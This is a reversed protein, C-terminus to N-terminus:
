ASEENAARTWGGLELCLEAIDRAAEPRSVSGAAEEMAARRQSDCLISAVLDALRQADLDREPLMVAAGAEVLSRANIEQHNDAAHPFPILVAPKRCLSLETVTTAGARCVVLDARRYALAMEDIFARTEVRDALGLTRYRQAVAELEREGTQHVLRLGAVRDVLKQMTEPMVQNLARAGQSGGFVLLGAGEKPENSHLFNDVLAKRVPSGLMLTKRASFHDLAQPFAVVIRRAVRGLLRNTLGPLANQELVLTPVRRLWAALVVPGSAYGGVGVVVHPRFRRLIRRSQWMARPVRLLGKLWGLLGKGKLGGVEILELEFGARPVHRGELGHRTGVFLVEHGQNRSTLEEALAIGPFLHGGTGGGAILIRRATGTATLGFVRESGGVQTSTSPRAM